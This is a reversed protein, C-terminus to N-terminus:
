SRTKIAAQKLLQAGMNELPEPLEIERAVVVGSNIITPPGWGRDIAVTRGRPGLTVKVADALADPHRGEDRYLMPM